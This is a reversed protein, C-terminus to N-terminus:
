IRKVIMKGTECFPPNKTMSIEQDYRRPYCLLSTPVKNMRQNRIGLASSSITGTLIALVAVGIFPGVIVGLFLTGISPVIMRLATGKAREHGQEQSNDQPQEM